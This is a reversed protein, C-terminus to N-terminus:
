HSPAAGVHSSIWTLYAPLGASLPVQIIEPTEYSHHETVWACLAEWHAQKTKCLLLCETEECLKEQWIYLSQIAPVINVCAVLHKNVLGRAINQAEELHATTMLVLCYETTEPEM